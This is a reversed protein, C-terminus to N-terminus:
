TLVAQNYQWKTRSISRIKSQLVGYLRCTNCKQTVRLLCLFPVAPKHLIGCGVWTYGRLLSHVINKSDCQLDLRPLYWIMSLYFVKHYTNKHCCNLKKFPLRFWNLKSMRILHANTVAFWTACTLQPFQLISNIYWYPALDTFHATQLKTVDTPTLVNNMKVWHINASTMLKQQTEKYMLQLTNLILHFYNPCFHLAETAVGIIEREKRNFVKQYWLFQMRTEIRAWKSNICVVAYHMVNISLKSVKPMGTQNIHHENANEPTSSCERVSIWCSFIIMCWM